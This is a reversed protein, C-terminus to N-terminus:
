AITSAALVETSSLAFAFAFAFATAARGNIHSAKIKVGCSVGQPVEKCISSLDSIGIDHCISVSAPGSSTTLYSKGILLGHVSGNLLPVLRLQITTGNCHPGKGSHAIHDSNDITAHRICPPSCHRGDSFANHPGKDVTDEFTNNQVTTCGPTAM